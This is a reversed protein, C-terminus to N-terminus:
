YSTKFLLFSKECTTFNLRIYTNLKCFMKRVINPDIKKLKTEVAIKNECINKTENLSSM